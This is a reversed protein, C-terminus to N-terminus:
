WMKSFVIEIDCGEDLSFVNDKKLQYSDGSLGYCEVKQKIPDVLLYYRVRNLEYVKFKVSKDKLYTSESGIELILAPPFTLWDTEIQGCVIM